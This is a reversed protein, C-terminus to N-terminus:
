GDDGRIGPVEVVCPVGNTWLPRPLQGRITCAVGRPFANTRAQPAYKEFYDILWEGDDESNAGRYPAIARGSAKGLSSVTRTTKRLRNAGIRRARREEGLTEGTQADTFTWVGGVCTRWALRAEAGDEAGVPAWVLLEGGEPRAVAPETSVAIGPIFAGNVQYVTGDPRFHVVLQNARVPLGHYVQDLRVHVNGTVDPMASRVSLEDAAVGVGLRDKLAEAAQMAWEAYNADSLQGATAASQRGAKAPARTGRARQVEQTAGHWLNGDIHVPAAFAQVGALVAIGCIWRWVGMGRVTCETTLSRRGILGDSIRRM